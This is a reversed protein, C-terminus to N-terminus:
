NANSPTQYSSLCNTTASTTSTISLQPQIRLTPPINALCTLFCASEKRSPHSIGSSQIHTGPPASHYLHHQLAQKPTNLSLRITNAIPTGMSDCDAIPSTYCGLLTDLTFPVDSCGPIRIFSFQVLGKPRRIQRCYHVHWMSDESASSQCEDSLAVAKDGLVDV